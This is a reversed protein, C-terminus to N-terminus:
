AALASSVLFIEAGCRARVQDALDHADVAFVPPSPFHSVNGTALREINSASHFLIQRTTENHCGLVPAIRSRVVSRDAYLLTWFEKEAETPGQYSWSSCDEGLYLLAENRLRPLEPVMTSPEVCHRQAISLVMMDIASGVPIQM